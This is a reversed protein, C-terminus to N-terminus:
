FTLDLGVVMTRAQPLQFFVDSAQINGATAAEPDLGLFKTFTLLNSGQAYVRARVTGLISSPLTYGITAQKLRLYSGDELYRTSAQSGNTQLLRPQPNAATTNDPRWYDNQRTSQNYLSNLNSDTFSGDNRYIKNGQTFQFFITLDFPGYGLTTTLGGFYDPFPSGVIVRDATSYTSTVDGKASLWTANGNAPDPGHYRVLYWAGLPQGERVINRGFILDQGGVLKTVKNKVTSVNGSISWKFDAGYFIDATLELELGKNEMAGFNQTFTSFGNVRSVPVNLLLDTTKKIYYGISGRVTNGLVGFEVAGEYQATKEWRLDPNALQTIRAGAVDNYNFGFGVLGLAPFDGIESNGTQGVSGRLKLFDIVPMPKFWSEDSVIWGASASPFFGYRHDKGFRSSGDVRGTLTLLYRDLYSYNARGFYGLFSFSTGTGATTVPTAASSINKLLDSPFGRAYASFATNESRQASIGGVVTYKHSEFQGTYQLTSNINYNVYQSNSSLANGDPFGDTTYSARKYKETLQWLDISLETNFTLGTIINWDLTASSLLQTLSSKFNVGELNSLPTGNFQANKNPTITLNLSGDPNRAPVNPYYLAAYTLPAAVANSTYVRYNDTRSPSINVGIRVEDSLAQDIRARGSYRKLLNGKIFGEESRYTGGMYYRTRQTGGTVSVSTESLGGTQKVLDMWNTNVIGTTPLLLGGGTAGYRNVAADNWIRTFQEGNMMDFLKTPAETGAYTRINVTQQDPKGQRTTILIVGNSGRSGYIASASADKLIEYSEIDNPNINLLPNIGDGGAAQGVAGAGAATPNTVPVGDIVFLPSTSASISAAGRIRISTPAGLVGSTTTFQVGPVRGQLVQEMTVPTVYGMDEKAVRGVSSTIQRKPMTGYGVVVVEDLQLVDVVLKMDIETRNEIIVKQMKYGIISFQLVDYNRPVRVTYFGTINTTTGITTGVLMVTVGPLPQGNEADTVYGRVTAQQAQLVTFSGFASLIFGVCASTLVLRM